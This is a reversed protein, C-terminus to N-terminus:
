PPGSCDHGFSQLNVLADTLDVGDDVEYTQWPQAAGFNDRDRLNGAPSTGADGFYGLIDLTDSLDIAQDGTVDFFDWFYLPSRQGGLSATPGLEKVDPCGDDDTDAPCTVTGSVLLGTPNLGAGGPDNTVDARLTYTGAAPSRVAVTSPTTPHLTLFPNGSTTGIPIPTSGTPVFYLAVGNDSSFVINLWLTAAGEPVSFYTEYRYVGEPDTISGGTNNPDIWNTNPPPAVWNFYRAVPYANPVPVVGPTSVVTWIPDAIGSGATSGIGTSLDLIGECSLPPPRCEVTGSLLLGTPNGSGGPDNTVDVRLVYTGPAPSAFTAPSPTTPHLTLFENNSTTGILIPASGPPVVYLAAGNDSSFLANLSLIATGVPVSFYAEYRYVGAPDDISGGTNNPDIWNTPPPPVVWNFYRPVPYANPVPVGGPASVVTWTSDAIGSGPTSGIGTSINLGGVCSSPSSTAYALGTQRYLEQHCLMIVVVALSAAICTATRVSVM